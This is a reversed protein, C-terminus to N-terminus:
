RSPPAIPALPDLIKRNQMAGIRGKPVAKAVSTSSLAYGNQITRVPIAPYEDLLNTAAARDPKKDIAAPIPNNVSIMDNKKGKKIWILLPFGYTTSSSVM